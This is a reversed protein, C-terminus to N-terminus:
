WRRSTRLPALDRRTPARDGRSSNCGFHAARCLDRVLALEPHESVPIVHDLSWSEPNVRKTEPDRYPITPDIPMRCLWCVAPEERKVRRALARYAVSSRIQRITPVLTVAKDSL